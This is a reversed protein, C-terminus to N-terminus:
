DVPLPGISLDVSSKGATDAKVPVATLVGHTLREQHRPLLTPVASVGRGLVRRLLSIVANEADPDIVVRGAMAQNTNYLLVTQTGDADQETYMEVGLTTTLGYETGGNDNDLPVFWLKGADIHTVRRLQGATGEIRIEIVGAPFIPLNTFLVRDRTTRNGYAYEWYGSAPRLLSSVHDTGSQAGGDSEFVRLRVQAGRLGYLAVTNCFPLQLRYVIDATTSEVALAKYVNQGAATTYPGFPTHRATPGMELWGTPDANPLTASTPSTSPSRAAACKYTRHTATLVRYTDATYTGGAVFEVEPGDIGDAYPEAVSGTLIMDPTIVSPELIYM